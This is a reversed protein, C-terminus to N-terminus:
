NSRRAPKADKGKKVWFGREWPDSTTELSKEILKKLKKKTMKSVTKLVM